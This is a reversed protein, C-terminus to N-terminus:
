WSSTSTRMSSIWSLASRKGPRIRTPPKFFEDNIYLQLVDGEALRYSLEARKGGVKIRKLRIYKHLLSQPLAPLAKTLYKDLRQGADNPGITLERM